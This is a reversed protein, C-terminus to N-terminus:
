WQFDQTAVGGDPNTFTLHVTTGKPIATKLQQGGKIFFKGTTKWKIDTEPWSAQNIAVSIGQQLNSGMVKIQFPGPVKKVLAVVPPNVVAITGSHNCTDQGISATVTWTYTGEAYTHTPNQLNSHPSGDGFDWDYAPSDYCGSTTANAAFAATGGPTLSAPATATCSLITCSTPVEQINAAALDEALPNSASNPYFQRTDTWVATATGAAAAIGMYDGYQNANYAANDTSNEDSYSIASNSFAASPTTVQRNTGFTAGGDTSASFFLDVRRNAADNRTDYWAMAVTGTSEDVALWPFFHTAQGSDDNVQLPQGWTNGGDTSRVVYANLNTGSTVGSPFDCYAVYLNGFYPSAPNTDVDLSPFANVGRQDQAPPTNNNGFSLLGHTAITVPTSWTNGGDTSRSFVTAEGTQARSGFLDNWVAYLTGDAGVAVDGGIEGSGGDVPVITWSGSQGSDSYGLVERNNQDWIVYIRGPHSYPGNSTRDVTMMEKDDFTASNSLDDVVVGLSQWSAGSDMSKAVVISTSSVGGSGSSVLMYSAYANGNSDWAVSPDSGFMQTGVSGTDDTPWPACNYTWTVGGDSSGYLTMTGYTTGTPAQCAPTSDLYFTNAMAVMELPNSPNVAVATEGQYDPVGGAPDVNTVASEVSAGGRAVNSAHAHLWQRHAQVVAPLAPLTVRNTRRWNEFTTLPDVTGQANIVLPTLHAPAHTQGRSDAAPTRGGPGLCLGAALGIVGLTNCVRRKKLINPFM